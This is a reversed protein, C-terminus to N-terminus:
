KVECENILKKILVKRRAFETDDINKSSLLQVGNILKYINFINDDVSEDKKLFGNRFYQKISTDEYLIEFLALVWFPDGSILYDYDIIKVKNNNVIMNGLNIDVYLLRPNVKSLKEKENLLLKGISEIEKNSCYYKLNIINNIFINDLYEYWSKFQGTFPSVLWGFGKTEEQCLERVSKGVNFLIANITKIKDGNAVIEKVVKGYIYPFVYAIYESSEKVYLLNCVNYNNKNWLDLAEIVHEYFGVKKRIQIIYKNNEHQLLYTSKWESLRIINYNFKVDECESVLYNIFNEFIMDM